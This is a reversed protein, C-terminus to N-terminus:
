VRDAFHAIFDQLAAEAGAEFALFQCGVIFRGHAIRRSYVLQCGLGVAVESSWRTPVAFAVEFATPLISGRAGRNPMLAELLAHGGTLQLGRYSLNTVQAEVQQGCASTVRADLQTRFRPEHRNDISVGDGVSGGGCGGLTIGNDM